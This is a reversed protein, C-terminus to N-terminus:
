HPHTGLRLVAACAGPAAAKGCLPAAGRVAVRPHGFMPKMPLGPAKSPRAQGRRLAVARRGHAAHWYNTRTSTSSARPHQRLARPGREPQGGQRGARDREGPPRCGELDGERSRHASPRSLHAGTAIAPNAAPPRTSSSDRRSCSATYRTERLRPAVIEDLLPAAARLRNASANSGRGLVRAFAEEFITGVANIEVEADGDSGTMCGSRILALSPSSASALREEARSPTGHARPGDALPQRLAHRGGKHFLKFRLM